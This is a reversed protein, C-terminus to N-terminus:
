PRSGGSRWAGRSPPDAGGAGALFGDVAARFTAYSFGFMREYLPPGPHPRGRITEGDAAILLERRRLGRQVLLEPFLGV